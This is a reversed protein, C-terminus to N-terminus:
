PKKLPSFLPKLLGSALVERSHALGGDDLADTVSAKWDFGRYLRIVSALPKHIRSRYDKIAGGM